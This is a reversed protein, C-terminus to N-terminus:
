KEKGEVKKRSWINREPDVKERVVDQPHGAKNRQWPFDRLIKKELDKRTITVTSLRRGMFVPLKEGGMSVLEIVRIGVM